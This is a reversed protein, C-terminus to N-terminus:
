FMVVRPTESSGVQTSLQSLKLRMHEKARVETSYKQVLEYSPPSSVVAAQFSSSADSM